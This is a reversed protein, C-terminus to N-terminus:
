IDMDKSNANISPASTATSPKVNSTQWAKPLFLGVTAAFISALIINWQGMGSLVFLVSSLGAVIAVILQPKIKLRPALLAVFMAPLAYDLGFAELDGFLSGFAAGLFGGSIWSIHSTINIGFTQAVYFRKTVTNQVDPLTAFRNAHLAFTEDTLQFAFFAKRLRSWHQLPTTMAASMLLHRLNVITTVMVIALAGDGNGLMQVAILQGSGAFFLAGMILADLSTMGVESALVGFAFSVPVYGMVIPLALKMGSLFGLKGDNCGPLESM